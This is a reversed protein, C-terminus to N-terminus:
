RKPRPARRSAMHRWQARWNGVANPLHEELWRFEPGSFHLPLDLRRLERLQALPRLSRDAVRVGSLTLAVLRTAGALPALSALHMPSYMGGGLFMWRLHHLERLADISTLRPANTVSLVELGHWQEIGALSELKSAVSVELVRVHRLTSAPQLDHGRFDFLRLTELAAIHRVHELDQARLAKAGVRRLRPRRALGELGRTARSVHAVEADLAVDDISRAVDPLPEHLRDCLFDLETIGTLLRMLRDATYANSLWERQHSSQDRTVNHIRVGPEM